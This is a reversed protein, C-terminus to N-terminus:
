NYMHNATVCVDAGISLKAYKKRMGTQETYYQSARHKFNVIHILFNDEVPYM